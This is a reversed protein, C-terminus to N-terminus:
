AAVSVQHHASNFALTPHKSPLYLNGPKLTQFSCPAAIIQHFIQGAVTKIGEVQPIPTKLWVGLQTNTNWVEASVGLRLQLQTNSYFLHGRVAPSTETWFKRGPDEDGGFTGGDIPRWRRERRTGASLM